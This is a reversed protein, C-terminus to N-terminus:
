NRIGPVKTRIKYVSTSAVIYLTKADKDGWAVNGVVEPVKITGLHKGQPSIVWVGGPGASYINGHKDVRM